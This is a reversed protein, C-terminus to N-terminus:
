KPSFNSSKLGLGQLWAPSPDVLKRARLDFCGLLFEADALCEKQVDPQVSARVIRQEITVLKKQLQTVRTQVQILERLRMERRFRIKCELVVTGIRSEQIEKLGYGRSTIMEWRAEEFIAMYQANNVHQFSDLHKERIILEYAHPLFDDSQDMM